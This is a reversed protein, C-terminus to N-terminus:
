VVMVRRSEGRGLGKESSEFFNNELGEFSIANAQDFISTVEDLLNRQGGKLGM